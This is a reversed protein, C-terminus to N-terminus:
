EMLRSIAAAEAITSVKPIIKEFGQWISRLQHLDPNQTSLESEFNEYLIVASADNSEQILGKLIRLAERVEDDKRNQTLRNFSNQVSSRNIISSNDVKEFIDGHVNNRRIFDGKINYIINPPFHNTSKHPQSHAEELEKLEKHTLSVELYETDPIDEGNEDKFLESLFPKLITVTPKM